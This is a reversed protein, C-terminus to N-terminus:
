AGTFAQPQHSRSNSVKRLTTNNGSNKSATRRCNRRYVRFWLFLGATTAGEMRVGEEVRWPTPFSSRSGLRTPNGTTEALRLKGEEALKQRRGIRGAGDHQAAAVVPLELHRPHHPAPSLEHLTAYGQAHYRRLWKRVTKPAAAFACAAPKVGHQQAFRVMQLRLCDPDNSQRMLNCYPVPGTPSAPEQTPKSWGCSALDRFAMWIANRGSDSCFCLWAATAESGAGPGAEPSFVEAAGWM